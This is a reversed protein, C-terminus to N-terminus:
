SWPIVEIMGKPIQDRDTAYVREVLDRFGEERVMDIQLFPLGDVLEREAAADHPFDPGVLLVCDVDNPESNDTVFSGNIVLRLVGARRALDVLWRLSEMEVRRLDSGQGFRAAVEDLTAPHIGPPLYGNDAFPPIM